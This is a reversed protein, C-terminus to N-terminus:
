GRDRRFTLVVADQDAGASGRPDPLRAVSDAVVVGLRLIDGKVQYNAYLVRKAPHGGSPRTGGSLCSRLWDYVARATPRVTPEVPRWAMTRPERSVNLRITWESLPDTWLCGIGRFVQLGNYHVLVDGKFELTTREDRFDVPLEREEPRRALRVYRLHTGDATPDQDDATEGMCESSKLVWLGQLAALDARVVAAEARGLLAVLGAGLLVVLLGLSVVPKPERFRIRNM